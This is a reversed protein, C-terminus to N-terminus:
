CSTPSDGGAATRASNYQEVLKNFEALNDTFAHEGCTGPKVVYFIYNVNAPHAAARIAALGPNGIPTPPLGAHTRTNYLSSSELQAQTIPQTYNKFEYRTTADIALPEGRSLRNYIVAAVLPAEKQVTVERNIMSAIKLIDYVNLNKSKAYKLNVQGVNAQFAQLQEAVLDDATEGPKVDYTAPFLFGELSSPSEAGYTAPNFGKHSKSAALYDGSVGAGQVLPAFQDRSYGEPLSLRGEESTQGTLRDIAAGYSMGSAMALPGTIIEGSKGSLKLRIQFLRSSSIVGKEDLLDAVQKAPAGQPIEVAVRGEGQGDGAFPQFLAVLFWLFLVGVIGLVIALIRRRGYRARGGRGSPVKDGSPPPAQDARPARKRRPAAQAAEPAPSPQAPPPPAAPQQPAPPPAAPQQATPPAAPPEEAPQRRRPAAPEEGTDAKRTRRGMLGGLFGGGGGGGAARKAKRESRGTRRGQERERRRRERELVEPDDRGFEDTEPKLRGEGPPTLNGEEDAFWDGREDSM